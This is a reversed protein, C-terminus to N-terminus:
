VATYMYYIYIYIRYMHIVKTLVYASLFLMVNVLFFTLITTAFDLYEYGAIAVVTRCSCYCSTYICCM